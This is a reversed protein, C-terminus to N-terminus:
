AARHKRVGVLVDLEILIFKFAQIRGASAYKGANSETTQYTTHAEAQAAMLDKRYKVIVSRLAPGHLGDIVLGNLLEESEAFSDRRNRLLWNEYLNTTQQMSGTTTRQYIQLQWVADEVKRALTKKM